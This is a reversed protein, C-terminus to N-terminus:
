LCASAVGNNVLSIHYVNEGQNEMSEAYIHM